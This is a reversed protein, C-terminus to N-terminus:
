GSPGRPGGEATVVPALAHSVPAPPCHALLPGQVLGRCPEWMRSGSFASGVLLSVGLGPSAGRIPTVAGGVTM